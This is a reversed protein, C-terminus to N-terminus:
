FLSANISQNISFKMASGFRTGLRQRRVREAIQRSLSDLSQLLLDSDLPSLLHLFVVKHRSDYFGEIQNHQVLRISVPPHNM